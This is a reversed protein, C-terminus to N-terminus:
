AAQPSALSAFWAEADETAILTRRGLKRIKLRGAAIEEYAGRISIRYCECFEPVSYARRPLHPAKKAPGEQSNSTM